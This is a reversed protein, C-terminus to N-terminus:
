STTQCHQCFFHHGGMHSRDLTHIRAVAEKAKPRDDPGEEMMECILEGLGFYPATQARDSYQVLGRLWGTVAPLGERFAYPTPSAHNARADQYESLSSGLCVTLMESFVCGLSFVDESRGRARGVRAEPALYAPTGYVSTEITTSPETDGFAHALGFDALYVRPGDTEFNVLINAPKIDRHIIRRHHATYLASLLCGFWRLIGTVTALRFQDQACQDLYRRLDMSAVPWMYICYATVSRQEHYIEIVHQSQLTRMARCELEIAAILRAQEAPRRSLDIYKRAFLRGSAIERVADVRGSSGQGLPRILEFSPESGHVDANHSPVSHLAQSHTVTSHASNLVIASDLATVSDIAIDLM